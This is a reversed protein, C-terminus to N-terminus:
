ELIKFTTRRNAQHEDEDCDNCSCSIAPSSEGYGKATLRDSQIGKEILYEVASQARKQSLEQNYNEQGRCDTHSALQVKIGPNQNLLSYLKILSPEADTRINWKDFDYYINELVIEKNKFIKDLTIELDFNQIPTKSDKGIGKTSFFGNNNLYNAKSAFFYYDKESDLEIIYAGKNNPKVKANAKQGIKMQIDPNSIPRRGLVKSNPDDPNQYIKEVVFVELLIKHVVPEKKVVVTTDKRSPIVKQPPVIKTFKYIDDNGQGLPRNSSLFGHQLVKSDKDNIYDVVFGFDDSGSNIPPLMNQVPVWKKGNQLYTKFIDLGGMGTHGESAFYLTDGDMHPFKEDKETNISRGLLRPEKWGETGRESAYIDYGGWGDPDNSSFFIINDSSHFTPHGYNINPKTFNLIKPTSWADSEYTASMLKCYHDEDEAGACKTFIIETGNSNLSATGENNESSNLVDSYGNVENSESLKIYLDSYRNGTWKYEEKENIAGRDSTFIISGNKDIIPAYDAKSSNFDTAITKYANDVANKKWGAAIDCSSIDKRYEYPSGIEIGLEKYAAKAEKYREAQKLADAYGKLADIGYSSDFATKYWDIAEDNQNTRKYSEALQYALRGKLIQSKEKNYEEPLMKVALAFQKREYATTGDNVKQVFSCSFCCVLFPLLILFTNKM